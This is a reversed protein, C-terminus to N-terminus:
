SKDIFAQIRDLIQELEDVLTAAGVLQNQKAQSELEASLEPM